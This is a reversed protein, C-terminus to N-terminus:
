EMWFHRVTTEGVLIEKGDIAVPYLVQAPEASQRTEEKREEQVAPYCRRQLLLIM